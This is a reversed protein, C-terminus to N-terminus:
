QSYCRGNDWPFNVIAVSYGLFEAMVVLAMKIMM